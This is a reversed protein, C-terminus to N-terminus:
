THTVWYFSSILCIKIDYCCNPSAQFKAFQYTLCCQSDVSLMTLENVPINSLSQQKVSTMTYLSRAIYLLLIHLIIVSYYHNGTYIALRADNPPQNCEM